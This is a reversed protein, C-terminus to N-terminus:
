QQRGYLNPDDWFPFFKSGKSCIREKLLLTWIPFVKDTLYAFLFDRFNDGKRFMTSFFQPTGMCRIHQLTNIIQSIKFSNWVLCKLDDASIHELTSFSRAPASSNRSLARPLSAERMKEGDCTQGWLKITDYLAGYLLPYRPFNLSKKRIEWCFCINHGRM